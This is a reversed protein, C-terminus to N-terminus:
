WLTGSPTYKRLLKRWWQNWCIQIQQITTILFHRFILIYFKQRSTLSYFYRRIGLAEGLGVRRLRRPLHFCIISTLLTRSVISRALLGMMTLEIAVFVSSWSFRCVSSSPYQGWVANHSSFACSSWDQIWLLRTAKSDPVHSGHKFRAPCCLNFSLAKPCPILSESSCASVVYHVRASIITLM